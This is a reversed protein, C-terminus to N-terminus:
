GLGIHDQHDGIGAFEMAPYGKSFERILGGGGGGGGFFLSIKEPLNKIVQRSIRERQPCNLEIQFQSVEGLRCRPVALM